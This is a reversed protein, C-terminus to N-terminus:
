AGWLKRAKKSGCGMCSKDADFTSVLAAAKSIVAAEYEECQRDAVTLARLYKMGLTVDRDFAGVPVLEEISGMMCVLLGQAFPCELESLKTWWQM